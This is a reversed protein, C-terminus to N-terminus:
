KEQKYFNERTKKKIIPTLIFVVALLLSVVGGLKSPISRLIAYAFLFYWEPQIHIPAVIPNAPSFNEVDGALYPLCTAILMTTIVIPTTTNLDKISFIPSFEIKEINEKSGTPNSSGTEHLMAIHVIVLITIIIPTIFHLSFFRTLTPQSVSFNGWIWEVLSKGIYPIASFINTIVTAAWFSIQGWPLVYGLFAIIISITFVIFGTIWVPKKTQPSKFFIGRTIHIYILIFMFSASNIHMFRYIWGADIDQIAHIISPFASNCESLFSTSIVMGTLLQISLFVGLLVGINWLTSIQTPTPLDILFNKCVLFIFSLINTALKKM